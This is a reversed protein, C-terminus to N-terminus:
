FMGGQETNQSMDCLKATKAKETFILAEYIQTSNNNLAVQLWQLVDFDSLM